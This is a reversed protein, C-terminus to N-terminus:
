VTASFPTAETGGQQMFVTVAWKNAAYDRLMIRDGILGGQTSGDMTVTDTDAATAWGNAPEGDGDDGYASGQMIDSSNAVKVIFSGGSLATGVVFEYNRGSGSAAPLTVTVGAARNTVLTAGAHHKTATFTAATMSIPQLFDPM